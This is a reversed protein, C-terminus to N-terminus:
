FREILTHYRKAWQANCFKSGPNMNGFIWVANITSHVEVKILEEELWKLQDGVDATEKMLELNKNNCANTNLFLLTMDGKYLPAIPDSRSNLRITHIYEYLAYYGYKKFSEVAEANNM